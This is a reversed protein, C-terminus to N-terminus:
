SRGPASIGGGAPTGAAGFGSTSASTIARSGPPTSPRRRGRTLWTCHGPAAGAPPSSTSSAPLRPPGGKEDAGDLAFLRRQAYCLTSYHPVKRLGVAERLETWEALLTVVGRYDTRLFQKLALLAFLQPQTFDQRSFRSSYAPLGSRGVRLAERAVAVASKTMSRSITQM